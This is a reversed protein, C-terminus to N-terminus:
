RCCDAVQHRKEAKKARQKADAVEQRAIKGLSKLLDDFRYGHEVRFDAELPEFNAYPVIPSQLESGSGKLSNRLAGLCEPLWGPHQTAFGWLPAVGCPSTRSEVQPV